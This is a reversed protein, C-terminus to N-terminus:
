QATEKNDLVKLTKLITEALKYNKNTIADRALAEIIDRSIWSPLFQSAPDPAPADNFTQLYLGKLAWYTRLTPLESARIPSGSFGVTNWIGTTSSQLHDALKSEMSFMEQKQRASTKTVIRTTPQKTTEM